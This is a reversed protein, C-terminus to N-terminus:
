VVPTSVIDRTIQCCAEYYKSHDDEDDLAAAQKRLGLAWAKREGPDEPRDERYKESIKASYDKLEVDSDPRDTDPMVRKYDNVPNFTPAIRTLSPSIRKLISDDSKGWIPALLHAIKQTLERLAGAMDVAMDTQANSFKTAAQPEAKRKEITEDDVQAFRKVLQHAIGALDDNWESALCHNFCSMSWFLYMSHYPLDLTFAPPAGPRTKQPKQNKKKKSSSPGKALKTTGPILTKKAVPLKDILHAALDKSTEHSTTSISLLVDKPPPSEVITDTFTAFCLCCLRVMGINM